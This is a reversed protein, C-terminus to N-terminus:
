GFARRKESQQQGQLFSMLEEVAFVRNFGIGYFDGDQWKVVGAAPQLGPTSVIV